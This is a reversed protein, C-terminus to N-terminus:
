TAARRQAIQNEIGQAMAKIDEPNAAKIAEVVEPGLDYGEADLTEEPASLLRDRFAADTLARGILEEVSKKTSM